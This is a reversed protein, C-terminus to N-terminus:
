HSHKGWDRSTWIAVDRFAHQIAGVMEGNRVLKRAADYHKADIIPWPAEKLIYKQKLVEVVHEELPDEAIVEGLAFASNGAAELVRFVVRELAIKALVDPRLDPFTVWRKSQAMTRDDPHATSFSEARLGECNRGITCNILVCKAFDTVASFLCSAIEVDRFQVNAFRVTRLDVKKLNGKQVYDSAVHFSGDRPLFLPQRYGSSDPIQAEVLMLFLTSQADVHGHLQSRYAWIKQQEALTFTQLDPGIRDIIAPFDTQARILFQRLAVAKRSTLADGVLARFMRVTAEGLIAQAMEPYRLSYRIADGDGTRVLMFHEKLKAAEAPTLSQFEIQAADILDIESISAGYEAILMAFFKAQDDADLPLGHKGAERQFMIRAVGPLPNSRRIGPATRELFETLPMGEAVAEAISSAVLPISRVDEPVKSLAAQARSRIVPEGVFRRDLYTEMRREDFPMLTFTICREKLSIDVREWFEPRTTILIRAGSNELEALTLIRELIENASTRSGHSCVEDFSDFVLTLAGNALLVDLQGLDDRGFGNERLAEKLVADTTITLGQKELRIWHHDEVLLKPLEIWETNAPTKQVATQKQVAPQQPKSKAPRCIQRAVTSKGSGATGVLVGVTGSESDQALFETLAEIASDVPWGEVAIGPDVFYPLEVHFPRETQRILRDLVRKTLQSRSIITVDRFYETIAEYANMFNVRPATVFTLPAGRPLRGSLASRIAALRDNTASALLLVVGIVRTSVTFRDPEQATWVEFQGTEEFVKDPERVGTLALLRDFHPLRSRGAPVRVRVKAPSSSSAEGIASETASVVTGDMEAQALQQDLYQAYPAFYADRRRRARRLVDALLTLDASSM